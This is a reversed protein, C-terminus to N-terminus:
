GQGGITVTPPGAPDGTPLTAAPATGTPLTSTPLTSTPITVTPATTAPPCAAAGAGLACLVPHLARFWAAAMKAYGGDNPHVVDALDAPVFADYLDAVYTLRRGAAARQEVAGRVLASIRALDDHVGNLGTRGIAGVLVIAEPRLEAPFRATRTTSPDLFVLTGGRAVWAAFMATIQPSTNVDASTAVIVDFQALASSGLAVVDADVSTIQANGLGPALAVQRPVEAVSATAGPLVAVLEGDNLQRAAVKTTSVVSDGDFLTVPFEPIGAPIVIRVTKSTGAALEIDRRVTTSELVVAVSGRLAAPATVVVTLLSPGAVDTLGDVGLTVKMKPITPDTTDGATALAGLCGTGVVLGVLVGLLLRM